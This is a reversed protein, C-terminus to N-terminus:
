PLYTSDYMEDFSPSKFLFETVIDHKGNEKFNIITKELPYYKEEKDLGLSIYETIIFSNKNYRIQVEDLSSFFLRVQENILEIDVRTYFVRKRRFTKKRRGLM